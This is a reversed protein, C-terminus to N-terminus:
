TLSLSDDIKNEELSSDIKQRKGFKCKAVHWKKNEETTVTITTLPVPVPSHAEMNPPPSILITQGNTVSGRKIAARTSGDARKIIVFKPPGIFMPRSGQGQLTQPNFSKIIKFDKKLAIKTTKPKKVTKNTVITTTASTSTKEAPISDGGAEDTKRWGRVKFVERAKTELVENSVPTECKVYKYGIETLLRRLSTKQGKFNLEEKAAGLIKNLSSEENGEANFRDVINKLTCIDSSNLQIRNSRSKRKTKPRPSIEYKVTTSGATPSSIEIRNAESKLRMLTSKSIGTALCTRKIVQDVPLICMKNLKENEFFQLVKMVIRREGDEMMKGTM